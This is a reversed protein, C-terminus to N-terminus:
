VDLGRSRIFEFDSAYTCELFALAASSLRETGGDSQNTRPLEFSDLLGMTNLLASFDKSLHRYRLIHAPENFLWTSQPEYAWSFNTIRSGVTHQPMAEGSRQLIHEPRNGLEIWALAHKPHDPDAASSALEDASAFQANIRSPWFKCGYHFASIFRGVPCRLVVFEETSLKRPYPHGTVLIPLQNDAIAQKVSTGANKPIHIFSLGGPVAMSDTM